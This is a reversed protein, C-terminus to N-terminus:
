LGLLKIFLRATSVLLIQHWLSRSYPQTACDVKVGVVGEQSTDRIPTPVTTRRRSLPAYGNTLPLCQDFALLPYTGGGGRPSTMKPNLSFVGGPTTNSLPTTDLTGGACLLGPHGYPPHYKPPLLLSQLPNTHWRRRTWSALCGASPNITPAKPATTSM